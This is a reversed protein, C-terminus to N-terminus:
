KKGAAEQELKRAIDARLDRKLIKGAPSLPFEPVIELREPLKFKAINKTLLYNSLEKFTMTEGDKLIVYACARELFVPDPMAVIAVNKVKPYSLILNEVEEVNIKEGGRNIVDKKRGETFIYGKENMRVLDGTKYFGDSTWATKNHDPARFYGCVTYPGRTVLEGVTGFPLVNENDDIVKVEDAPSVPRGSSEMVMDEPDDLRVYNLLGEATGYVEQPFAGLVDRVKKRLEPALRAGGNQLVKLSTLNYRSVDESNVWLVVLPVAAGIVTIKEKEVLSFVSAADTAASIVVRGKNFWAGLMGCSGLTFNHATPLVALLVTNEDFGAADASQKANYVYDNHTRPILKPLATTGGSLHILAVDYPDPRFKKLYDSPYDKEIPKALLDNISVIGPGAQGRAVLVFKLEPVEGRLENAMSLYSFKRFESPIAYGVAGSHKLFYGIETNRHPPLSMIPIVGIRVLGFFTYVFETINPLQFVIRDGPKLGIELFHLALRDSLVQMERYTVQKDECVLAVKDPVQSVVEDLKEALTKEEWYGAERYRKMYQQPWPVFGELM